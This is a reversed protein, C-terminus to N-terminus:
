NKVTFFGGPNVSQFFKKLTVGQFRRRKSRRTNSRDNDYPFMGYVMDSAHNIGNFKVEFIGAQMSSDILFATNANDRTRSGLDRNHTTYRDTEEYLDEISIPASDSDSKSRDLGLKKDLLGMKKAMAFSYGGIIHGRGRGGSYSIDLAVEGRFDKASPAGGRIQSPHMRQARLFRWGDTLYGGDQNRSRGVYRVLSDKVKVWKKAFEVPTMARGNEDAFKSAYKAMYVAAGGFAWCDGGKQLSSRDNNGGGHNTDKVKTKGGSLNWLINAGFDALPQNARALGCLLMTITTVCSVSRRNM